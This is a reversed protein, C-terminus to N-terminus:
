FTKGVKMALYKSDPATELFKVIMESTFVKAKEPVYGKGRDKLFAMLKTYQSINLNHKLKIMSRLMSYSSWLTSPTKTIALEKFYDLVVEQTLENTKRAQQWKVFQIYKQKYRSKSKEPIVLDITSDEANSLEGPEIDLSNEGEATNSLEAFTVDMSSDDESEM